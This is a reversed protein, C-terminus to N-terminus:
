KSACTITGSDIAPTLVPTQNALTVSTSKIDVEGGVGRAWVGGGQTDPPAGGPNAVFASGQQTLFATQMNGISAAVPSATSAALGGLEAFGARLPNSQTCNQAWASSSTMLAVVLASSGLLASKRIRITNMQGGGRHGALRRCRGCGPAQSKWARQA